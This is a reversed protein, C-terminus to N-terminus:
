KVPKPETLALLVTLVIQVVYLVIVGLIMLTFLNLFIGTQMWTTFAWWLQSFPPTFFTIVGALISDSVVWAYYTTVVHVVLLSLNIGGFLLATVGFLITHILRM